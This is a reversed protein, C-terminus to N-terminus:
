IRNLSCWYIMKFGFLGFEGGCVVMGICSINSDLISHIKKQISLHPLITLTFRVHLSGLIWPLIGTFEMIINWYYWTLYDIKNKTEIEGLWQGM